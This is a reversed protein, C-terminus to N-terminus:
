GGRVGPLGLRRKLDRLWRYARRGALAVLLGAATRLSFSGRLSRLFVERAEEFRDNEMLLVGAERLRRPRARRFYASAGPPYRAPDALVRDAVTVAGLVMKLQDASAREKHVRYRVLPREIVVADTRALLRLGLERDEAHGFTPDFLGVALLLEREVLMTSPKILNGGMMARALSASRLRSVDPALREREVDEYADRVSLASAVFVGTEDFMAHDSFFLGVDPALERAKWQRELRDPEWLDDSDLFAIWPQMAAEVGANRAASVGLNQQRLVRAGARAAAAATGDTSGDDVVLIEAPASTQDRASMVADVVERERNWAPIVVSVPIRAPTARDTM